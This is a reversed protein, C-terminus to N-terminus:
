LCRSHRHLTLPPPFLPISFRARWFRSIRSKTEFFIFFFSFFFDVCDSFGWNGVVVNKFIFKLIFHRPTATSVCHPVCSGFCSLQLQLFFFFFFFFFFRSFFFFFFFFFFFLRLRAMSLWRCLLLLGRFKGGAGPQTPQMSAIPPGAARQKPAPAPDPLDPQDRARKGTAAGAPM